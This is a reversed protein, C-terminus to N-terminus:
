KSEIINITDINIKEDLLNCINSLLKLESINLRESDFIKNDYSELIKLLDNISNNNLDILLKPDIQSNLISDTIKIEEKIRSYNKIFEDKEKESGIKELDNLLKNINIEKNNIEEEEEEENMNEKEEKKNNLKIKNTLNKM